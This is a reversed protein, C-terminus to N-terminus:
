INFFICSICSLYQKKPKDRLLYLYMVLIGISGLCQTSGNKGSLQCYILTKGYMKKLCICIM